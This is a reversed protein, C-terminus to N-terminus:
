YAEKNNRIHIGNEILISKVKDFGFSLNLEKAIKDMGWGKNYAEIVQQQIERSIEQKKRGGTGKKFINAELLIRKVVKTSFPLSLERWIQTVNYKEDVYLHIIKDILEQPGEIKKGM